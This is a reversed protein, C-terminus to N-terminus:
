GARELYAVLASVTDILPVDSEPIEVGSRQHIEALLSLVDMSDLELEESMPQDHAVEALDIEPAVRRLSAAVVEMAQEHNM